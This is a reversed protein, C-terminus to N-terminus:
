AVSKDISSEVFPKGLISPELALHKVVNVEGNPFYLNLHNLSHIDKHELDEYEPSSTINVVQLERANKYNDRIKSDNYKMACNSPSIWGHTQAGM